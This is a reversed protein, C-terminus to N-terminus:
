LIAQKIKRLRNKTHWKIKGILSYNAYKKAVYLYGCRYYDQWFQERQPNMKKSNKHNYRFAAEVDSEMLDINNMINEFLNIGKPSNLLMLSVGKNDDFAPIIKEIGRFDAITIDSPRKNGTFKCNACSPRNTYGSIFLDKHNQIIKNKYLVKGNSFAAQETYGHWGEVKTRCKYGILKSKFTAELLNIHERFMLPSPTSHCVVDCLILNEIDINNLYASLAATQCPTGTFLVRDGNLIDKKIKIFIDKLNSQVYKSGIFADRQEKNVARQHCVVFNEDFAVGYVVGNNKLIFDSIAIFAGGSTSAMRVKESKHKVAYVKPVELNDYLRFNDKFSCIKVCQGCEACLDNNISPYLFGEEDPLM